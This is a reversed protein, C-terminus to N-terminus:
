GRSTKGEASLALANDREDIRGPEWGYLRCDPCKRNKWGRGLRSRAVDDAEIYGSPLPWDHLRNPCEDRPAATRDYGGCLFVVDRTKREGV